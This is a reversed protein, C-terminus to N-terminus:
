SLWRRRAVRLRTEALASQLRSTKKERWEPAVVFDSEPEYRLMEPPRPDGSNWEIGVAVSKGLSRGVGTIFECIIDLERQGVIDHSNLTFEIESADFFHCNIWIEDSARIHWFCAALQSREFIERVDWPMAVPKGDETYSFPWALARATEILTQWDEISTPSTYADLFAGPDDRWYDRIDTFRPRSVVERYPGPTWLSVDGRPRDLLRADALAEPVRVSLRAELRAGRIARARRPPGLPARIRFAM